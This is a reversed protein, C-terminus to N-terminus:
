IKFVGKCCGSGDTIRQTFYLKGGASIGAALGQDMASILMCVEATYYNSYFCQRVIFEGQGDYQFDVEMLKYIMKLAAVSDQRSIIHLSKRLNKGFVFSNQFLRSKVEEIPGRGELYREAQERSFFAYLSLCERFNLGRLSPMETQFADATLRFLENLKKKKIFEPMFNQAIKILM